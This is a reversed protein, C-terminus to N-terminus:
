FLFNFKCFKDSKLLDMKYHFRISDEEDKFELKNENFLKIKELFKEFEEIEEVSDFEYLYDKDIKKKMPLQYLPVDLIDADRLEKVTIYKKSPLKGLLTLKKSSM